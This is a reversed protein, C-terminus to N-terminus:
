GVRQAVVSAAATGTLAAGMVVRIRQGAAVEFRWPVSVTGNAPVYFLHEDGVTADNAVNRVQVTFKANASASAVVLAEYIGAGWLPNSATATGNGIAGTDAVVQGSTPNTAEAVQDRWIPYNSQRLSM